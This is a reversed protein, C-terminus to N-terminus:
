HMIKYWGSCVGNELLKANTKHTGAIWVDGTTFMKVADVFKVLSLHKKAWMKMVIDEGSDGDCFHKTMIARVRLKLERLENDRSRRDGEICVVDVTPKWVQSFEGPYGNRCQFWQGKENVDGALIILSDKYLSFVRDIWDASIQTIEDIFLVPPYAHEELYPRCKKGDGGEGILKHITTYPVGYKNRVDSGLIHQPTVFLIKNFGKDTMIKYTKGAGGQGTLVTNGSVIMSPFGYGFPEDSYWEFGSQKTNKIDKEKFWELGMPKAGTFYIGDM